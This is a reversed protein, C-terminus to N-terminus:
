ISSIPLPLSATILRNPQDEVAALSADPPARAGLNAGTTATYAPAGRVLTSDARTAETNASM